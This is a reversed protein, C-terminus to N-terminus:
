GRRREERADESAAGAGLLDEGPGKLPVQQTGLMQGLPSPGERGSLADDSFLPPLRGAQEAPQVLGPANQIVRM